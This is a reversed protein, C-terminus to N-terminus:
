SALPRGVAPVRVRSVSPLLRPQNMSLVGQSFESNPVSFGEEAGGGAGGGVAVVVEECCYKVFEAVEHAEDATGGGVVIADGIDGAGGGELAVAVVDSQGRIAAVEGVRGLQHTGVKGGAHSLEGALEFQLHEGVQAVAAACAGPDGAAGALVVGMTPM